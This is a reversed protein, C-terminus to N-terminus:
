HNFIRGGSRPSHRSGIRPRRSAPGHASETQDMGRRFMGGKTASQGVSFRGSSSESSSSRGASMRERMGGVSWAPVSGAVSSPTHPNAFTSQYRELSSSRSPPQFATTGGSRHPSASSAQASSRQSSASESVSEEFQTSKFGNLIDAQGSLQTPSGVGRGAVRQHVDSKRNERDGSFSASERVPLLSPVGAAPTAGGHSQDGSILAPNKAEAFANQQAALSADVHVSDVVPQQGALPAVACLTAFFIWFLPVARIADSGSQMLRRPKM